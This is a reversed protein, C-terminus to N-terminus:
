FSEGVTAWYTWFCFVNAWATAAPTLAIIPMRTEVASGPAGAVAAHHLHVLADRPGALGRDASALDVVQNVVAHPIGPLVDEARREAVAEGLLM